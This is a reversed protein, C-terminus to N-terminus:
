PQFFPFLNLVYNAFQSSSNRKLFHFNTKILAYSVHLSLPIANENLAPSNIVGEHPLTIERFSRVITDLTTIHTESPFLRIENSRFIKILTQVGDVGKMDYLAISYWYCLIACFETSESLNKTNNMQSEHARAKNHGREEM